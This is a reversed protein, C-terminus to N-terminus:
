LSQKKHSPRGWGVGLIRPGLTLEWKSPVEEMRIVMRDAGKDVLFTFKRGGIVLNMKPCHEEILSVTWNAQAGKHSVLRPRKRM